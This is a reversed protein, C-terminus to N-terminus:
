TLHYIQKAWPDMTTSLDKTISLATKSPANTISLDKTTSNANMALLANSNVNTTSPDKTSSSRAPLDRSSVRKVVMGVVAVAVATAPDEEMAAAIAQAVVKSVRSHKIPPLPTPTLSDKKIPLAIRAVIRSPRLENPITLGHSM